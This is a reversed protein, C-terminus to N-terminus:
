HDLHRCHENRLRFVKYNKARLVEPMKLMMVDTEPDNKTDTQLLLKVRKEKGKICKICKIHM